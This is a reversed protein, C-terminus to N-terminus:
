RLIKRMGDYAAAVKLEGGGFEDLKKELKKEGMGIAEKGFHTFIAQRIKFKKCSTIQTRISSHGFLKNEKRRVMPRTVSSGDGIYLDLDKFIKRRNKIFILDPNYALTKGAATIRFGVAPAKISHIVSYAMIKFPGLKFPINKKIKKLNPLAFKRLFKYTSWAAYVAKPTGEKLGFAHDPHAHTILIWDPNISNLRGYWDLGWDILLKKKRYTILLSSHRKHKKNKEEVYGKTGLFKLIM